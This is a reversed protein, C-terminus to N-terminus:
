FDVFENFNSREFVDFWNKWEVVSEVGNGFCVLLIKEMIELLLM